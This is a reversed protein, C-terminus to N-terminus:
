AGMQLNNLIRMGRKDPQKCRSIIFNTRISIQSNKGSHTRLNQWTTDPANLESCGQYFVRASNVLKLAAIEFWGRDQWEGISVASDISSFFEELLVTSNSGSGKPVLTILSLDKHVTTTGLSM